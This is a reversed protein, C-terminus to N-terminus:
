IKMEKNKATMSTVKLKFVRTRPIAKPNFEFHETHYKDTMVTLAKFKEQQDTVYEVVGKGMISSYNMTCYGKERDSYLDHGTDMEFSAKNNKDILEYKYGELAGHFYLVLDLDDDIVEYGFNLPLIYPYGDDDVLGLRVVDCQDIIKLQEDFSTIERDERRM